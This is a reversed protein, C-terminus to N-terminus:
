KGRAKALAARAGNLTAIGPIQIRGERELPEIMSVLYALERYLDPCAAILRANAEADPNTATAVAIANAIVKGDQDPISDLVWWQPRAYAATPFQRAIWPGPTFTAENM